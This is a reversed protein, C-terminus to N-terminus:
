KFYQMCARDMSGDQVLNHVCADLQKQSTVSM